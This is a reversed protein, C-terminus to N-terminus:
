NFICIKRFHVTEKLANLFSFLVAAKLALTFRTVFCYVVEIVCSRQCGTGMGRTWNPIPKPLPPDGMEGTDDGDSLRREDGAPRRDRDAARCAPAALLLGGSYRDTTLAPAAGAQRPPGPGVSAVPGTRDPGARRGVPLALRGVPAGRRRMSGGPRSLLTPPSSVRSGAGPPDVGM